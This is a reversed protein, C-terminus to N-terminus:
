AAPGRPESIQPSRRTAALLLSAVVIGAVDALWDGMSMDRGVFQQLWEDAAAYAAYLAAWFALGPITLARGFSRLCRGGLFALLFYLFFHAIKDSGPRMRPIEPLPRHMLLFLVIWYGLWVYLIPTKRSRRTSESTM